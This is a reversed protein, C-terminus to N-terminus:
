LVQSAMERLLPILLSFLVGLLVGYCLSRASSGKQRAIPSGSDYRTGLYIDLRTEETTAVFVIQSGSGACQELESLFAPFGAMRNPLVVQLFDEGSGRPYVGVSTFNTTIHDVLAKVTPGEGHSIPADDESGM